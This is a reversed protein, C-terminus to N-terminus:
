VKAIKTIRNINDTIKKNIQYWFTQKDNQLCLQYMYQIIYVNDSYFTVM